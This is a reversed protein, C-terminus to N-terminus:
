DVQTATISATIKVSPVETGQAAIGLANDSTDTQGAHASGEAYEFAWRWYVTHSTEDAGIALTQDTLGTMTLDAVSDSWTSNDLSYQLPIDSSNVEELSITYKVTVEATNQVKIEFSGCTGPAIAGSKVDAEETSTGFDNITDFLNFKLTPATGTVAIEDGMAKFSWKAVTATDSGSATSTYKAFTGSIVCTSLLAVVLLVLSFRLTKNTKM